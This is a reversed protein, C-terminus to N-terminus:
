IKRTIARLRAKEAAVATKERKVRLAHCERLTARIAKAAVARLAAPEIQDTDRVQLGASVRDVYTNIIAPEAIILAVEISAGKSSRFHIEFEHDHAGNIPRCVFYDVGGAAFNFGYATRRVVDFAESVQAKSVQM